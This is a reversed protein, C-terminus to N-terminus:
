GDGMMHAENRTRIALEPHCIGLEVDRGEM